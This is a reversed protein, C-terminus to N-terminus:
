GEVADRGIVHSAIPAPDICCNGVPPDLVASANAMSWCYTCPSDVTQVATEKLTVRQVHGHRERTRLPPAAASPQRGPRTCSESHEES